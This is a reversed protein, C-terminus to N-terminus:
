PVQIELPIVQAHEVMNLCTDMKKAKEVIDQNPQYPILDKPIDKKLVLDQSTTLNTDKSSEQEVKQAIEQIPQDFQILIEYSAKNFRDFTTKEQQTPTMDM